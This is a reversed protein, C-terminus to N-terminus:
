TIRPLFLTVATGQPSSPAIEARGGHALAIQRVLTLGMGSGNPKTSFFPAFAKRATAATIGPGNDVVSICVFHQDSATRIEIAANAVEEVAEKANKLLNILAQEVLGADARVILDDRESVQTVQLRVASPPQKMLRMARGVLDHVNVSRFEVVPLQSVSRYKAVFELLGASRRRIAEIATAIDVAIEPPCDARVGNTFLGSLSDALSSIPTLSNMIEHALMRGLDQWAQTEVRDLMEDIPILAVLRRKTSGASWESCNALLRSGSKEIRVIAQRGPILAQLEAIAAQGLRASIDNAGATSVLSWAARNVIEWRDAEDVTLLAVPVSDCIAQLYEVRGRIEFREAQLISQARAAAEVLRPHMTNAYKSPGGTALCDAAEAFAEDVSRTFRILERAVVFAVVALFLSTAYYKLIAVLYLIAAGLGALIFVRVLLAGATSRSLPAFLKSAM